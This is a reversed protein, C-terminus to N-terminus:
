SRGWAALARWRGARPKLFGAIAAILTSKGCGSPGVICLFENEFIDLSLGDVAVHHRQQEDSFYEIRLDQVCIKVAAM